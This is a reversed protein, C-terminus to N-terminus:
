RQAGKSAEKLRDHIRVWGMFERIPMSLWFQFDGYISAM